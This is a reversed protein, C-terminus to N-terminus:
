AASDLEVMPRAVSWCRLMAELDAKRIPKTLYDDMGAQVCRERDGQQAHATLAIIPTHRDSGVESERVRRTTEIGDMVPMQVDMLIVDFEGDGLEDLVQMGNVVSVCECGLAALFRETLMTNVPNDEAVLVRLGLRVELKGAEPLSPTQGVSFLSSLTTALHRRRIPKGLVASFLSRAESIAARLPLLTVIPVNESEVARRMSPDEGDVFLVDYRANQLARVADSSTGAQTVTCGSYELQEALVARTTASTDAILISKGDVEAFLPQGPSSMSKLPLDVWFTSGTGVESVLGIRGGML